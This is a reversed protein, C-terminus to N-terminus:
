SNHAMFKKKNILTHNPRKINQVPKKADYHAEALIRGDDTLINISDCAEDKM